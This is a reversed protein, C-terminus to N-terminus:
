QAKRQPRLLYSIDYLRVRGAGSDYVVPLGAMLLAVRGKMLPQADEIELRFDDESVLWYHAALANAADTIHALDRHLVSKQGTYSYETSFAIPCVATRGTYLYLSGEEYAVITATPDTNRRIWEYVRAKEAVMLAHQEAVASMESRYGYRYNWLAAGALAALALLMAGGLVREGIPHCAGQSALALRVIHKGEVWLGMYLLPVFPLLFRDFIAYNWMLVAASYFVVIFHIPKWEQSRAQRVIGAVAGVSVVAGIASSVLSNGIGVTPALLYLAPGAIWVRLNGALMAWFVSWRPVCFRWFKAYSTYYLLTQEWGPFATLEGHALGGTAAALSTRSPWFSALLFPAAVLCFLAARRYARRYLAAAVIGATVAVGLTRTMVSLGALIGAIVARAPPVRSHMAGDAVQAATLALAAFPLDSLLARSFILVHPEFACLSVVILAPWNGVGTLRRLLEFAAALFWCGFFATLWAAPDLNSPFSPYWRWIWSLLWPYLVPYKTQPPGGPLYPIIYGQGQALAKASSFYVADDRFGGFYQDPPLVGLYLLFLVLTAAFCLLPLWSSPIRFTRM